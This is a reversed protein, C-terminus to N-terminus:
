TLTVFNNSAENNCGEEAAKLKVLWEECEVNGNVLNRVRPDWVAGM